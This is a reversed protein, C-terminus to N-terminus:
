FIVINCGDDGTEYLRDFHATWSQVRQQELRLAEDESPEGSCTAYAILENGRGIARAADVQPDTCLAAEVECQVIQRVQDMAELNLPDDMGLTLVGNIMFLPFLCYREALSRPVLATNAFCPEFDDLNVFPSESVNAKM